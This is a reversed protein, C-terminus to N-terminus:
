EGFFRGGIKIRMDRPIGQSAAEQMFMIMAKRHDFGEECMLAQITEAVAMAREELKILEIASLARGTAAAKLRAELAAASQEKRALWAAEEGVPYMANSPESGTRQKAAEAATRLRQELALAVTKKDVPLRSVASVGAANTDARAPVRRMERTKATEVRHIRNRELAAAHRIRMAAKIREVVDPSVDHGSKLKRIVVPPTELRKKLRPLAMMFTERVIRREGGHDRDSGEISSIEGQDVWIQVARRTAGLAEAAEHVSMTETNKKADARIYETLFLWKDDGLKKAWDPFVGNQRTHKYARAVYASPKLAGAIAEIEKRSIWRTTEPLASVNSQTTVDDGGITNGDFGGSEQPCTLYHLGTAASKDVRRLPPDVLDLEPNKSVSSL